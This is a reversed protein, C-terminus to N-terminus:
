HAEKEASKSDIDKKAIGGTPLPHYSPEQLGV